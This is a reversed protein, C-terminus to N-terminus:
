HSVEGEDLVLTRYIMCMIHNGTYQDNLLMPVDVHMLVHLSYSLIYSSSSKVYQRFTRTTPIYNADGSSTGNRSVSGTNAKGQTVRTGVM